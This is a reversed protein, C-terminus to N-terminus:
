CRRSGDCVFVGKEVGWKSIISQVKGTRIVRTLAARLTETQVTSSKPLVVGYTQPPIPLGGMELAGKSQNLYYSLTMSGGVYADVRKLLLMQYAISESRLMVIEIPKRGAAELAANVKNIRANNVTGLLIAIRHGSLDMFNHLNKPNGRQVLLGSSFQAYDIFNYSKLRDPNKSLQAMAADCKKSDLAAFLSAFEYIRINTRLHLDEGLARMIDIELGMPTKGDEGVFSAPLSGVETCFTIQGAKAFPSPAATQARAQDIAACWVLPLVALALAKIATPVDWCRRFRIALHREPMRRGGKLFM